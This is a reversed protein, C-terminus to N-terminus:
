FLSLDELVWSNKSPLKWVSINFLSCFITDFLPYTKQVHGQQKGSKYLQM